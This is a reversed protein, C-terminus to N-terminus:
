DQRLPKAVSIEDLPQTLCVSFVKAHKQDQPLSGAVPLVMRSYWHRRGRLSGGIPLCLKECPTPGQLPLKGWCSKQTWGHHKSADVMAIWKKRTSLSFSVFRFFKQMHKTRRCLDQLLCYWAVTGIVNDEWDAGSPCGCNKMPHQVKCHFSVGALDKQGDM